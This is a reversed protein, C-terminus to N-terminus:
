PGIFYVYSTTPRYPTQTFSVSKFFIVPIIVISLLHLGTGEPKVMEENIDESKKVKQENSDESKVMRLRIKGESKMM